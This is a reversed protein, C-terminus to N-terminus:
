EVCTSLHLSPISWFRLEVTRVVLGGVGRLHVM